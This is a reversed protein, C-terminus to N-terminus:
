GDLCEQSSGSHYLLIRVKEYGYTHAAPTTHEQYFIRDWKLIANQNLPVELDGLRLKHRPILEQSLFITLSHANDPENADQISVERV